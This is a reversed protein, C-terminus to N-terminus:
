TIKRKAWCIYGVTFDRRQDLPDLLGIAIAAPAIFLAALPMLWGPLFQLGNMLRRSLLRFYGGGPEIREIDWGNNELLLKVGFRTFRWYDHPHQHVEWDQPVVLLLPAAPRATRSMEALVAAPDAVHELTVISIAADFSAPKFPLRHLDAVCDLGSYNWTDDGIGLDTAIYSQRNFYQRHRGEGAGADLVRAANPLATAFRRTEQEILEEFHFVQRRLWPPVLKRLGDYSM